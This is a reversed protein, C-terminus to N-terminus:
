INVPVSFICNRVLVATGANAGDGDLHDYHNTTYGCLILSHFPHLHKRFIFSAQTM